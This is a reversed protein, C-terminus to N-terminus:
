ITRVPKETFYFLFLDKLVFWRSKTNQYKHGQLAFTLKCESHLPPHGRWVKGGEKKLQGQCIVDLNSM